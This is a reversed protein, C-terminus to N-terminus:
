DRLNLGTEVRKRFVLRSGLCGDVVKESSNEFHRHIRRVAAPLDRDGIDRGRRLHRLRRRRAHQAPVARDALGHAVAHLGGGLLEAVVRVRERLRHVGTPRVRDPDHDAVDLVGEEGLRRAARGIDRLRGAGVQDQQVGILVGLGLPVRDRHQEGLADVADEHGGRRGGVRRAQALGDVAAAGEHEEVPDGVSEVDVRDHGVVDGPCAPQGPSSSSAPCRRMANTEVIAWGLSYRRPSRRPELETSSRTVPKTPASRSAPM